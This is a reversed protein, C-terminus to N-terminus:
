RYNLVIIIKHVFKNIEAIACVYDQCASYAWFLLRLDNLHHSCSVLILCSQRNTVTGVINAHDCRSM